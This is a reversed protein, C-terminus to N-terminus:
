RGSVTTTLTGDENVERIIEFWRESTFVNTYEDCNSIRQYAEVFHRYVLKGGSKEDWLSREIAMKIIQITMGLRWIGAHLLRRLFERSLPVALDLRCARTLHELVDGMFDIDNDDNDDNGDDPSDSLEDIWVVPARRKMQKFPDREIFTLLDPVGSLIMWLPWRLDQMAGKVINALYDVGKQNPAHLAHQFEDLYLRYTQKRMMTTVVQDWIYPDSRTDAVPNGAHRLIALGLSKATCGPPTRVRLCAGIMNDYEDKFPQLSPNADLRRKVITSKGAGSKGVVAVAYGEDANGSMIHALMLELEADILDDFRTVIHTAKLDALIASREVTKSGATNRIHDLMSRRPASEMM